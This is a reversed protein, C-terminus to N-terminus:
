GDHRLAQELRALRARTEELTFALAQKERNAELLVLDIRAVLDRVHSLLERELQRHREDIEDQRRGQEALLRDYHRHTAALRAHLYRVLEGDLRLQAADFARQAALRPALLREFLAALRGRLGRGPPAEAPWAAAVAALDPAEPAPDTETTPPEDSM